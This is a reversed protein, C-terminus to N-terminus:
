GGGGPRCVYIVLSSARGLKLAASVALFAMGMLSKRPHGDIAPPNVFGMHFWTQRRFISQKLTLGAQRLLRDAAKPELHLTHRPLELAWWRSRALRFALSDINPFDFVLIGDDKLLRRVAMLTRTPNMLHEVTGVMTIADFRIGPQYDEVSGNFVEIGYKERCTQCAVKGIEVGRVRFGKQRLHNMFSGDSSGIDLVETRSPDQVNRLIVERIHPNSGAGYSEGGMVAQYYNDPYAAAYYEDLSAFSSGETFWGGCERCGLIKYRRPRAFLQDRGELVAPHPAPTGCYPCTDALFREADSALHVPRSTDVLLEKDM